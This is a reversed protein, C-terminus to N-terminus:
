RDPPHVPVTVAPRRIRAAPLDRRTEVATQRPQRACRDREHLEPHVRDCSLSEQRLRTIVDVTLLFSFEVCTFVAGKLSVQVEDYAHHQLLKFNLDVEGEIPEGAVRLHQPLVLKIVDESM